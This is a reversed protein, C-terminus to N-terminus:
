EPPDSQRLEIVWISSGDEQSTVRAAVEVVGDSSEFTFDHREGSTSDPQRVDSRLLRGLRSTLLDVLCWLSGGVLEGLDLGLPEEGTWGVAVVIQNPDADIRARFAPGRGGRVPGRGPRISVNSTSSRREDLVSRLASLQLEWVARNRGLTRAVPDAEMAVVADELDALPGHVLSHRIPHDVRNLGVDVDLEDGWHLVGSLESWNGVQLSFLLRLRGGGASAVDRMSVTNRRFAEPDIGVRISELVGDSIGDVSVAVEMGLAAVLDAVRDNWITANTTVSVQPRVGLEVLRDMVALSERALFPEGGLFNVSTIRRLFPDLDELFSPGYPSTLPPRHERRARIASSLEGNCMVCQLNCTNSLALELQVPWPPDDGGTPVLHAFNHFYASEAVGREVPIRCEDCGLRFDEVLLHRRLRSLEPGRWIDILSSEAVNGLRLWQNQCCVRVEGRPDLSM